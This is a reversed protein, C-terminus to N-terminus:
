EDLAILRFNKITPPRAPNGGRFVVKAQINIYSPLDKLSSEYASYEFSNRNANPIAPTLAGRSELNFPAKIWNISDIDKPSNVPELKYYLDITCSEDRYADFMIRLSNSPRPVNLKKSVYKASVSGGSPAIEDVFRDKQTITFNLAEYGIAETNAYQLTIEAVKPNGGLEADLVTAFPTYSFDVVLANVFNRTGTAGSITVMKGIDLKSLHTAVLLNDTKITTTNSITNNRFHILSGLAAVGPAVATPLCVFDDFVDNIIQEPSNSATLFGAPNDLRNSVLFASFRSADIIPSLNRNTSKLVARINLSKKDGLGNTGVQSPGSPSDGSNSENIYSCTAMPNDFFIKSNPTITRRPMLSFPTSSTDNIGASQTTQVNWTIDTGALVLPTTLLMLEEFRRNETAFIGPGGVRGDANAAVGLDIIYFDLEALEIEFGAVNYIVAADIGNLASGSAVLYSTALVANQSALPLISFASDVTLSTQSAIAIVKKQERTIPHQIFSGVVVQTQFFTGTGTVNAGSSTLTGTLFIDYSPSFVVRSKPAKSNNGHSPHTVRIRTSNNKTEFPDLTLERLAIEENVFEMEGNVAIDFDAKWLAFKFDVTQDQSWSIGNQSKFYIGQPYPDTLIPKETGIEVNVGGPPVFTTDALKTAGAPGSQAVWTEYENSDSMLVIAYNTNQSLYIPSEFYFRTPVMEDSPSAGYAQPVGSAFTKSGITWPGSNETTPSIKPDLGNYGTVTVSGQTINIDNTIVEDAEKLVEGFPLIHISPGGEDGLLRLQLTIPPQTLGTPRRRFFIDVATIFCGGNDAVFFSQAIPDRPVALGRNLVSDSQSIGVAQTTSGRAISFLRTSFTTQQRTDIWGRATYQADGASAPPPSIQNTPSTTMRFVRDGVKFKKLKAATNINPILFIGEMRGKSDCQLPDGYASYVNPAIEYKCDESVEVGDFFAYLRAAPMFGKATFKVERSRIFEALATDIIRTGMNIPASMGGDVFTSTFQTTIQEGTITTTTRRRPAVM